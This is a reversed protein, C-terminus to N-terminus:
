SSNKLLFEGFAKKLSRRDEKGREREKKGYDMEMKEQRKREGSLNESTIIKSDTHHRRVLRCFYDAASSWYRM